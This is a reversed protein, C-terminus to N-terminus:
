CKREFLHSYPLPRSVRLKSNSVSEASMAGCLHDKTIGSMIHFTTKFVVQASVSHLIENRRILGMNHTIGIQSKNCMESYCLLAHNANGLRKWSKRDYRCTYLRGLEPTKNYKKALLCRPLILSSLYVQRM